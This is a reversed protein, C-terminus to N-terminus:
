NLSLQTVLAVTQMSIKSTISSMSEGAHWRDWIESRQAASYYIRRRQKMEASWRQRFILTNRRGTSSVAM